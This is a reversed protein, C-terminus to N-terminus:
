EAIRLGFDAISQPRFEHYIKLFLLYFHGIKQLHAGDPRGAFRLAQQDPDRAVAGPVLALEAV